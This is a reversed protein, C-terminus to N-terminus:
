KLSVNSDLLSSPLADLVMKSSCVKEGGPREVLEKFAVSGVWIGLFKGLNRFTEGLGGGRLCIILM